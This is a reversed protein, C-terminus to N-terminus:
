GTHKKKEQKRRMREGKKRKESLRFAQRRMPSKEGHNTKGQIKSVQQLDLLPRKLKELQKLSRESVRKDGNKSSSNHQRIRAMKRARAVNCENMNRKSHKSCNTAWPEMMNSSYLFSQLINQITSILRMILIVHPSITEKEDQQKYALM